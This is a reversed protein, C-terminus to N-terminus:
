IKFKIITTAGKGFGDSTIDITGDHSEIIARCNDLGIGSGSAKTTFGRAFLQKGTAEDFGHGSDTIELIMQGDYASVTLSINKESATVDIAEISNKLINLIVQMLRTRDGLIVPLVDPVKISVTIKRKEISAYLMSMCDTIISRLNTPKKELTENGNVYQRQINLIDQIHTIINQQEGVSRRIEEQTNKQAETIKDLMSVLAAAKAEGFVPTIASQQAAFFEALKQLNEVNNQELARRIRGVYSGFGVVGNGIDHLINSAIEFKGQIVAKESVLNQIARRKQQRTTVDDFYVVTCDIDMKIVTFNFYREIQEGAFSLSFSHLENILIDDADATTNRIKETITPVITDLLAILNNGNIGQAVKIPKLHDEGKANIYIIEGSDDIEAIGVPAYKMIMPLKGETRSLRNEM